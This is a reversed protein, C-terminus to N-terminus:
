STTFSSIPFFSASHLCKNCWCDPKQSKLVLIALLFYFNASLHFCKTFFRLYGDLFALVIRLLFKVKFISTEKPFEHRRPSL